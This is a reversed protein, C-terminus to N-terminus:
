PTEAAEVPPEETAGALPLLVTFTSGIGEESEVWVRGGLAESLGKVLSLGVGADGLGEILLRDAPDMRQFVRGLEEPPIGAGADGVALMLFGDDDSGEARVALHIREGEPSAGIANKLLHLLIQSIAMEDGLVAPPAEPLDMQLALSKERLGSGVQNVANEVCGVLDVPTPRLDLTGTELAAIQILDNLLGGMREVATRVRELFKRQMAGLLGVSEGLLLDTYGMISSMPQRIEQTISAIAELDAADPPPPAEAREPSSRARDLETRVEVVEQLAAQLEDKLQEMEESTPLEPPRAHSTKLREIEAELIAITEEAEQAEYSVQGVTEFESVDIQGEAHLAEFLKMNDRELRHIREQADLLAQYAESSAPVRSQLHSFRDALHRAIAQLMEQQEESWSRRAFPSLLLLGGHVDRQNAIPVLLAPGTSEVGLMSQLLYADPSRSRSTFSLVRKKQLAAALVPSRSEDLPAGSLQQERILDYGAAIAFDGRADPASLVLCYESRMTEAVARAARRVLQESDVSSSLSTLAVAMQAEATQTFALKKLESDDRAAEAEMAQSIILARAGAIALIPYAVLNGLRVYGALPDAAPALLLQSLYGAGLAAFGGFAISWQPPRRLVLLLVVTATSITSLAHWGTRVADETLGISDAGLRTGVVMLALAVVNLVVTSLLVRDSRVDAQPVLFAWAFVLLGALDIFHGLAPLVQDGSVIMLWNLAASTMFFLRLSFLWGAALTWRAARPLSTHRFHAQSVTYLLALIATLILHYALSGHPTALIAAAETLIM